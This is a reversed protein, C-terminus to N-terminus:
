RELGSQLKLRWSQRMNQLIKFKLFKLQFWIMMMMMMVPTDSLMDDYSFSGYFFLNDKSNFCHSLICLFPGCFHAHRKLKMIIICIHLPRPLLTGEQDCSGFVAVDADRIVYVSGSHM